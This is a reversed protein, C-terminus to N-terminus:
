VLDLPWSPYMPLAQGTHPRPLPPRASTEVSQFGGKAQEGEEHVQNKM